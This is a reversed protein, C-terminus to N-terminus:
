VGRLHESVLDVARPPVGPVVDLPRLAVPGDHLFPDRLATEAVRDALVPEDPRVFLFQLLRLLFRRSGPFLLAIREGM